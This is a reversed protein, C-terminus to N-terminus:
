REESLEFEQKVIIDKNKKKDRLVKFGSYGILSYNLYPVAFVGGWVGYMKLKKFYKGAFSDFMEHLKSNEMNAIETYTLRSIKLSDFIAGM